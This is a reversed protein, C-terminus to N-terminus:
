RRARSASVSKVSVVGSCAGSDSRGRILALAIATRRLPSVAWSRSRRVRACDAVLSPSAHHTNAITSYDDHGAGAIAQAFRIREGKRGLACLYYDVIETDTRVALGAFALARRLFYDIFNAGGTAFRNGVCLINGVPIGALAYHLSCEIGEAIQMGDDVIGAEYAVPHKHGACGLFPIRHQSYMQTTVEAGGTVGDIERTVM